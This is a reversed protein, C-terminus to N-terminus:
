AIGYKRFNELNAAIYEQKGNILVGFWTATHAEPRVDFHLGGTIEGNYKWHAYVGVGGLKFRMAAIYCDFLTMRKQILIEPIFDVAMGKWHWDAKHFGQTGGNKTVFIKTGLFRCYADVKSVLEPSIINKDGWSEDPISYGLKANTIIL